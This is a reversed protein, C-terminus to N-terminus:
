KNGGQLVKEIAENLKNVQEDRLKGTKLAVIVDLLLSLGKQSPASDWKSM